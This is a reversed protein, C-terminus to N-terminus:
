FSYIVQARGTQEWFDGGFAGDYRLSFALSGERFLSTLSAGPSFLSQNPYRGRVRLSGPQNAFHASTHEGTLRLERIWSAKADLVWKQHEFSLCKAFNIGTEMRVMQYNNQRVRLDLGQAGTESFGQEHLYNYDVSGFPKLEFLSLPTIIVGVDVHGSATAGHHRNHATRNVGPFTINRTGSFQDFAGMLVMNALFRNNYVTGYLAGYYSNIHGDGLQQNWNLDTATYGVGSGVCLHRSISYDAGTAGGWTKGYFGYLDNRSHEKMWDGFGNAWVSVQKRRDFGRECGTTYLENLRTLFSQRMQM